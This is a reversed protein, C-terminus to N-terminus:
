IATFERRVWQTSDSMNSMLSAIEFPTRRLFKHLKKEDVKKNNDVAKKLPWVCVLTEDVSKLILFEKYRMIAICYRM